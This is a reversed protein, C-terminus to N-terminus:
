KLSRFPDAAGVNSSGQQIAPAPVTRTAPRQRARRPSATGSSKAGAPKAEAAPVLVKEGLATRLSQTLSEAELRTGTNVSDNPRLGNVAAASVRLGAVVLLSKADQNAADRQLAENAALISSPYNEKEFWINAIKLWPMASTPHDKAAQNLLTVAKEHRGAAVEADADKLLSELQSAQDSGPATAACGALLTLCLLLAGLGGRRKLTVRYQTQSIEDFSM